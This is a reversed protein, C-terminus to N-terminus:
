FVWKEYRKKFDTYRKSIPIKKGSKMIITNGQIHSIYDMNVVFSKHCQAFRNDGLLKPGIESVSSWIEVETGDILRLYLKHNIVEVNSIDRHLVLRTVPRTKVQIGLNDMEKGAKEAKYLIAIVEKPNPPKLLYAFAAVNYSQAAYDNASTLFVIQGPYGEKRMEEALVIGDMEPMIIDLFCIDPKKGSCIFSLVEAATTFTRIDADIPSLSIIKKLQLAEDSVDDCILINM